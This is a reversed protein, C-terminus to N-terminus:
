DFFVDLSQQAKVPGLPAQHVCHERVERRSRVPFRFARKGEMLPVAGLVSVPQPMPDRFHSVRSRREVPRGVFREVCKEFLKQVGLTRLLEYGPNVPDRQRCQAIGVVGVDLVGIRQDIVGRTAEHAKREHFDSFRDLPPVCREGHQVLVSASGRHSARPFLVELEIEVHSTSNGAIRADRHLFAIAPPSHLYSWHHRWQRGRRRVLWKDGVKLRLAVLAKTPNVVELKRRVDDVVRVINRGVLAIERQEALARQLHVHGFIIADKRILPFSLRPLEIEIIRSLEPVLSPVRHHTGNRELRASDVPSPDREVDAERQPEVEM